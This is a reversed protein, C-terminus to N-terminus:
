EKTREIAGTRVPKSDSGKRTQYKYYGTYFYYDKGEETFGTLTNYFRKGKLKEKIEEKQCKIQERYGEFSEGERREWGM